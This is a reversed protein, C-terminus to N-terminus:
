SYRWPLATIVTVIPIKIEPNLRRPLKVFSVIGLLVISLILLIVFRVQSIYRAQINSLLRNDFSLSNLYSVSRPYKEKNGYFNNKHSLSMQAKMTVDRNLIIREQGSLGTVEVLSGFVTGLKVEKATAKGDQEIFVFASTATQHVADIPIYPTTTLTNESTFYPQVQARDM